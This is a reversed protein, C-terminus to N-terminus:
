YHPRGARQNETLQEFSASGVASGQSDKQIILSDNVGRLTVNDSAIFL